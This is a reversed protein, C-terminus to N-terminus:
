MLGVAPYNYKIGEFEWLRPVTLGEERSVKKVADM